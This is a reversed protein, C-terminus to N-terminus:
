IETPLSLTALAQDFDAKSEIIQHKANAVQQQELLQKELRRDGGTKIAQSNPQLKGSAECIALVDHAIHEFEATINDALEIGANLDGFSQTLNLPDVVQESGVDYALVNINLPKAALAMMRALQGAGLILVNM